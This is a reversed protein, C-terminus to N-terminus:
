LELKFREEELNKEKPLDDLISEINSVSEDYGDIKEKPIRMTGVEKSFSDFASVAWTTPSHEVYSEQMIQILAWAM